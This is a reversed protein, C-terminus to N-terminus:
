SPWYKTKSICKYETGIMPTRCPPFMLRNNNDMNDLVTTCKRPKCPYMLLFMDLFLSVRIPKRYIDLSKSETRFIFQMTENHPFFNIEISPQNVHQTPGSTECGNSFLTVKKVNQIVPKFNFSIFINRELSNGKFSQLEFPTYVFLMAKNVAGKIAKFRRSHIKRATIHKGDEDKLEKDLTMNLLTVCRENDVFFTLNLFWIITPWFSCHM